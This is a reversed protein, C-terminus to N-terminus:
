FKMNFSLYAGDARPTMQFGLTQNLSYVGLGCGMMTYLFDKADAGGYDMEDYAEKLAGVSSCLLFSSVPDAVILDSFFGIGTGAILHLKKDEEMASVKFSFAMYVCCVGIYFGVGLKIM